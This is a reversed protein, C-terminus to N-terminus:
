VVSWFAFYLFFRVGLAKVGSLGIEFSLLVACFLDCLSLLIISSVDSIYVVRRNLLSCVDLWKSILAISIRDCRARTLPLMSLVFM